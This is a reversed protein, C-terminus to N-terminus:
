RNVRAMARSRYAVYDGDSVVRYGTVNRLYLYTWALIRGGRALRVEVVRREYPHQGPNDPGCNEYRDLADLLRPSRGLRYAEGWVRGPGEPAAVAAPYSGLDYLRGSFWGEGVYHASSRLLRAMPHGAARRLTGYVFLHIPDATM